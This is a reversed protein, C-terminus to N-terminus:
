LFLKVMVKIQLRLIDWAITVPTGSLMSLINFSALIPIIM